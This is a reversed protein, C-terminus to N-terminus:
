ARATESASPTDLESVPRNTAPTVTVAGSVVTLLLWFYLEMPFIEFFTSVFSAAIAAVVYAAVGGALAGDRGPRAAATHATRWGAFLILALLWLGVVGLEIGTKVYYNDPQYVQGTSSAPIEPHLREAVASTAGIGEGLPHAVAREVNAQWGVVREHYSSSSLAAGTTDAPLFAFIALPVLLVLLLARHRTIALYLLGAALGLWAGRVVSTALGVVIVPVVMLFLRNRLRRPDDLAQALGVLLVLMLFFGFPFPQTFTSFSRLYGGSFRIVTNYDYGLRNLEAGGLLQQVIGYAATIFGCVMLITVLGDREHRNLPCRWAVAVVLLYFFGVKAGLVGQTGGVVLASVLGLGAFAAVAVFWGPWRQGAPRRATAPAVLSAVVLFLVFAEKWGAVGGHAPLLVLLGNFPVLAALALLGRQPRRVIAVLVPAAVCLLLLQWGYGSAVAVAVAGAVVLAAPPRLM